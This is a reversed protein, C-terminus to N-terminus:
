ILLAAHRLFLPPSTAVARVQGAASRARLANREPTIEASAAGVIILSVPSPAAADCSAEAVADTAHGPTEDAAERTTVTATSAHDPVPCLHGLCMAATFAVAWTHCGM